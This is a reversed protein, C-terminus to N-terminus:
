QFAADITQTGGVTAVNTISYPAGQNVLPITQTGTSTAVGSIAGSNFQSLPSVGTGPTVLSTPTVATGASLGSITTPNQTGANVTNSNAPDAPAYNTQGQQAPTVQSAIVLVQKFRITIRISNYFDPHEEHPMEAIIMNPYLDTFTQVFVIQSQTYFNKIQQYTDRYYEPAIMFPIEIEIPLIIRYDTIIQGSELPHEMPRANERILARLPRAYPFQQNFNTDFVGVIDASSPFIILGPM